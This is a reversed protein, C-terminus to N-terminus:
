GGVHGADALFHAESQGRLREAAEEPTLDRAAEAFMEYGAMFKRTTASRLLPPFFHAHLQWYDGADPKGPAAHWGMSYPFFRQFLNDYKALLRQLLESLSRREVDELDPLRAVHRRPIVLTEFPWVAWFPVLVLWDPSEIVLRAGQDLELRAYDILLPRGAEAHAARQREDEVALEDPLHSTAWLQGHPHPNSAGMEEGRNEFILISRYRHGLEVSQDVWLEVVGEIEPVSMLALDLDHRPSFCLVRCTGPAPRSQLLSGVGNSTPVMDPLLAPYDNTFAFTREYDPNSRGHARENGPCLYCQPDFRPRTPQWSSEAAGLWPRATRGPSVLVWRGNLPNLRRHPADSLVEDRASELQM